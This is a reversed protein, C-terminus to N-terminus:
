PRTNKVFSRAYRGQLLPDAYTLAPHGHKEELHATRM